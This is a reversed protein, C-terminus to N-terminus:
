ISLFNNAVDFLNTSIERVFIILTKLCRSLDEDFDKHYNKNCGACKFTLTNNNATELCVLLGQM